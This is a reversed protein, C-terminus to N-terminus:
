YQFDAIEMNFKRFSPAATKLGNDPADAQREISTVSKSDHTTRAAALRRQGAGGQPQHWGV